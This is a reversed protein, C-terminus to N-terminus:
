VLPISLGDVAMRYKIGLSPIWNYEEVFQYGGAVSDYGFWMVASLVLPVLSVILSTNKIGKENSGPIFMVIIAGGLPIFIILTLLFPIEM